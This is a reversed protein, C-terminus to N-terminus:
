KARFRLVRKIGLVLYQNKYVFTELILYYGGVLIMGVLLMMIFNLDLTRLLFCVIVIPITSVLRNLLKKWPFGFSVYKSIFFQAFVLVTLESVIWVIASGVSHLRPVLILNLIVGVSAGAISNILIARDKKLPMLMQIVIIQEYGIVFLLPVIIRLPLIAGEYGKGSILLIVGDAFSFVYVILPIVFSLLLDISKNSLRLFEDKNGEGLLASLRPMMVGTFATFVALVMTYLKVATSYYGVETTNSVLGLYMVNFSTYMSTLIYYLGLIFFPKIFPNFNINHLSFSLYNRSYVINVIANVIVMAVNLFFYMVYDESSRVFFFVSIVYISRVLIKRITIYKFEELGKYLWEVLLANFLVKSAGIILMRQYEHFKPVFFALVLIVCVAIISTIFNLALLSSFTRSLKNRDNKSQAVERIAVTGIGLMSFLIGYQIVSDVFNCIGIGEVGLVRSVYPYTILPFIYNSATLVTSYFFNKKVSPM